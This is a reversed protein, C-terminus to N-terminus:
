QYVIWCSGAASFNLQISTSCVVPASNWNEEVDPGLLMDWIATGGDQLQVTVTSVNGHDTKIRAVFGKTTKVTVVGAAASTVLQATWAAAKDATDWAEIGGAQPFAIQPGVGVPM